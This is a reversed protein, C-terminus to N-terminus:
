KGHPFDIVLRPPSELEYARFLRKEALGAAWALEAEFDCTLKLHKLYTLQLLSDREKITPAGEETHAQAPSFRIILFHSAAMRVTEGSGCATPDGNEYYISYSPIRDFEFVIRDYLPPGPAEANRVAKLTAVGQDRKEVDIRRIGYERVPTKPDRATIQEPRKEKRASPDTTKSNCSLVIIITFSLLIYRLRLASPSDTTSEMCENCHSESESPPKKTCLYDSRVMSPLM